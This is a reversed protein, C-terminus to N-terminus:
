QLGILPQEATKTLVEGIISASLYGTKKLQAVCNLANQAPVSALLGGSTQPDFLLPFARHRQLQESPTGIHELSFNQSYLTSPYGRELTEFAGELAPINDLDITARCGPSAQLMELLHGHLGYGTIDTCATAGHGALVKAALANSHDMQALAQEVWRGEAAHYMHAAFLTGTGVPKTLILTNGPQMGKKHLLQSEEATGNVSFGIGLESGEGTHGGALQCHHSEFVSVAGLMLQLLDRETIAESNAPLVVIAQASHPTANMAFLDSLAHHAAIRGLLFPDSVLARFFDVSQILLQGAPLKIIAADDSNELDSLGSQTIKQNLQKLVRRLITSGVKAGCGGCRMTSDLAPKNPLSDTLLKNKLSASLSSSNMNSNLFSERPRKVEATVADPTVPQMPRYPLESFNRMFRRDISDKWLWVWKGKFTFLGRSGVAYPEGCALLSLFRKQPRFSKLPKRLLFRRLNKNLIPGQRVAFVGAKPRPHNIQNAIDGAAFVNQHSTSQLHDNVTIFGNQDTELDSRALWNQASAATCWFIEDIALSNGETSILQNKRVSQVSFHHHAQIHKKGFHASLHNQIQRSFREPLGSGKQILHFELSCRVSQENSLAWQMAQILEVGAAGGGVVGIKVTESQRTHRLRELLAQWHQYFHAIPKVPTTYQQAGDISLDPTIGCNISIVDAGLPARNKLTITVPQNGTRFKLGQVTGQIFRVRAFSCLRVLDIHTDDFGYHGAVLGPLMGSYPTQVQPSILTLRVGPLPKMGWKKIIQVHSHGGGILILDQYVPIEMTM